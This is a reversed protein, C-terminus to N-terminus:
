DGRDPGSRRPISTQTLEIVRDLGSVRKATVGPTVDIASHNPPSPGTITDTGGIARFMSIAHPHGAIRRLNGEDSM